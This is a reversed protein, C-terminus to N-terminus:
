AQYCRKNTSCTVHEGPVIGRQTAQFVTSHVFRCLEIANSAKRRLVCRLRAEYSVMQVVVAGDHASIPRIAQITRIRAAQQFCIEGNRWRESFLAQYPWLLQAFAMWSVAQIQPLTQPLDPGRSAHPSPYLWTQAEGDALNSSKCCSSLWRRVGVDVFVHVVCRFFSLPSGGANDSASYLDVFNTTNRHTHAQDAMSEGVGSPHKSLNM